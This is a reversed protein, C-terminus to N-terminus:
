TQDDEHEAFGVPHLLSGAQGRGMLFIALRAIGLRDDGEHLFAHGTIGVLGGEHSLDLPPAPAQEPAAEGRRVLQAALNHPADVLM